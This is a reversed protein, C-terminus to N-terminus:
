ALQSHHLEPKQVEESDALQAVEKFLGILGEVADEKLTLQIELM